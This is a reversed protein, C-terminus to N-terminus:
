GQTEISWIFLENSEDISVLQHSFPLIFQVDSKHGSYTKAIKRGLKFAHIKNGSAAYIFNSDSALCNIDHEMTDSVRVLGM